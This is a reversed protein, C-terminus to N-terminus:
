FQKEIQKWSVFKSLTKRSQSTSQNREYDKDEKEWSFASIQTLRGTKQFAHNTQFRPQNLNQPQPFIQLQGDWNGLLVRRLLCPTRQRFFQLCSATASSYCSSYRSASPSGTQTAHQFLNLHKYNLMWGEIIVWISDSSSVMSWYLEGEMSCRRLSFLIFSRASLLAVLRM